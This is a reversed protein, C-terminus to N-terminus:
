SHRRDTDLIRHRTEMEGVGWAMRLCRQGHVWPLRTGPNGSPLSDAWPVGLLTVSPSMEKLVWLRVGPVGTHVTLEGCSLLWACLCTSLSVSLLSFPPPLSPPLFPSAAKLFKARCQSMIWKPFLFGKFMVAWKYSGREKYNPCFEWKARILISTKPFSNRGKM